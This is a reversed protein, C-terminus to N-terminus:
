MMLTYLRAQNVTHRGPIEITVEKTEGSNYYFLKKSTIVTEYTFLVPERDANVCLVSNQDTVCIIQYSRGDIITQVMAGTGGISHYYDVIEVWNSGLGSRKAVSKAKNWEVDKIYSM